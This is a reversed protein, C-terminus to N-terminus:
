TATIIKLIKQTEGSIVPGQNDVVTITQTFVVSTNGCGDTAVFTNTIFGQTPCGAQAFVGPTKTITVSGCNDTAAPQLAQASALAANDCYQVTRNLTGAGTTWTPAQTDAGTYTVVANTSNGCGDSVVYIYTVTWSCNNGSTNTTPGTVSLNAQATCNDTYQNRITTVSPAAPVSALCTNGVNGGPLSGTLVPATLDQVTVTNTVTTGICYPAQNAYPTASFTIVKNYPCSPVTYTINGYPLNSGQQLPNLNGAETITYNFTGPVTNGPAAAVTYTITSGPCVTASGPNRTVTIAPLPNVTINASGQLIAACGSGDALSNWSITYNIPTNTTNPINASPITINQPGGFTNSTWGYTTTTNTTTNLINFVGNFPPTGM